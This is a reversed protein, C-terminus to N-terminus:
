IAELIKGCRAALQEAKDEDILLKVMKKCSGTAELIGERSEPAARLKKIVKEADSGLLEKAIAILQEKVEGFDASSEANGSSSEVDQAIFGQELLQRLSEDLDPLGSGKERLQEVNSKGDVLILVYRLHRELEDSRQAIAHEGKPTKTVVTEADM